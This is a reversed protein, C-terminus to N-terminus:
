HKGLMDLIGGIDILRDIGKKQRYVATYVTNSYLPVKTPDTITTGNKSWGVFVYGAKPAAKPPAKPASGKYVVVTVSTKGGISGNEGGAFTVRCTKSGGGGGGGSSHTAGGGESPAKTTTETAQEKTTTQTAAQTTTQTTTKTTTQTTETSTHVTTTETTTEITTATTTETTTEAKTTEATTTETVAGTTEESSEEPPTQTTTETDTQTTEISTGTAIVDVPLFDAAFVTSGGLLVFLVALVLLVSIYKFCKIFRM